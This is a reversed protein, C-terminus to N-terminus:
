LAGATALSESKTRHDEHGDETKHHVEDAGPQELVVIVMMM